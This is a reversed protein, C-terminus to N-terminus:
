RYCCCIAWLLISARKKLLTTFLRQKAPLKYIPYDELIESTFDDNCIHKINKVPERGKAIHMVCLRIYSLIQRKYRLNTEKSAFIDPYSKKIYEHMVHVRSFRNMSNKQTLSGENECYHYLPEHMIAVSNICPTSLLFFTLDEYIYKRESIFKLNNNKIVDRKYLRAWPTIGIDRDFKSNPLSGIGENFYIKMDAKGIYLEKSSHIDMKLRSGDKRDFYSAFVIEDAQTEYIRKVCRKITDVDIYDDGDVFTIYDGTASELGTNRAESLGENIRKNIIMMRSDSFLSYIEKTKDTSNDNVVIIEINEYTQSIISELCRRIYKEVNYAAVIISIKM